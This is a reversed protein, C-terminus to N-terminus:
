ARLLGPTRALSVLDFAQTLFEFEDERFGGFRRDIPLDLWYFVYRARDYIYFAGSEPDGPVTLFLLAGEAFDLWRSIKAETKQAFGVIAKDEELRELGFDRLHLVSDIKVNKM